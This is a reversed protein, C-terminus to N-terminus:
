RGAGAGADDAAPNQITVLLYERDPAILIEHKRTRVRLFTVDNDADITRVVSRAKTVLQALLGAYKSTASPTMTSKLAVGEFNLIM